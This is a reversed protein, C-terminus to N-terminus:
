IASDLRQANCYREEGIRPAGVHFEGLPEVLESLAAGGPPIAHSHESGETQQGGSNSGAGSVSGTTQFSQVDELQVKSGIRPDSGCALADHIHPLEVIDGGVLPDRIEPRDASVARLVARQGGSRM